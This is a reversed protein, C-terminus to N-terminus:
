FSNNKIKFIIYIHTTIFIYMYKAFQIRIDVVNINLYFAYMVTEFVYRLPTYNITLGLLTKSPPPYINTM